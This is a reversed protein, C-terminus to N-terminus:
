AVGYGHRQTKDDRYGADTPGSWSGQLKEEKLWRGHQSTM